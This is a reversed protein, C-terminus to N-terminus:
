FNETNWHCLHALRNLRNLRNLGNLGNSFPYSGYTEEGVFPYIKFKRKCSSCVTFLNLFIALVKREQKLMDMTWTEMEM